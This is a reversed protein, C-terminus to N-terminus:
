KSSIYLPVEVGAGVDIPVAWLKFTTASRKGSVFIGRGSSFSVGAGVAWYANLVNKRLFYADHRFLLAGGKVSKDGSGITKNIIDNTSQYEFDNKIFTINIAGTSVERFDRAMATKDLDTYNEQKEFAGPLTYGFDEYKKKPTIESSGAGLVYPSEGVVKSNELSNELDTDGSVTHDLDEAVSSFSLITLLIFVALTRRLM